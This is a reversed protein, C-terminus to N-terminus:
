FQKSKVLVEIIDKKDFWYEVQRSKDVLLKNNADYLDVYMTVQFSNNTISDLKFKSIRIIQEGMKNISQLYQASFWNNFGDDVRHEIFKIPLNDIAIM